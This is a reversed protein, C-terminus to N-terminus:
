CVDNIMMSKVNMESIGFGSGFSILSKVGHGLGLDRLSTVFIM